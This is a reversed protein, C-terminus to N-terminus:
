IRFRVGRDIGGDCQGAQPCREREIREVDGRCVGCRSAWPAGCAAGARESPAGEAPRGIM